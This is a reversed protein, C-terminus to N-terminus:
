LTIRVGISQPADFNEAARYSYDVGFNTGNGIPIEFTFGANLGTLATTRNLDDTIDSEYVYGCRLMFYSKYGFEAGIGYQDKTFSNSTYNAALTMRNDQNLQYDYSAGIHLLSPLEFAEARLEYVMPYSQGNADTNERTVDNGDGSFEMKPGVNKLAIGFKIQRESGAVYQIGADLSVGSASLDPISESIVRVTAGGSINATFKKAYSVGINLYSPSYTAGTGQPSEPTTIDIDGFSMSMVSMALVADDSMVKSFGFANIDIDSLWSTSSFIFETDKTNAIGAVNLFTAELGQVSATNIGGWGSSRAWPNILLESAGAQGSRQENGASVSTSYLTMLGAFLAPFLQKTYKNMVM